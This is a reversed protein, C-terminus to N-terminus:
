LERSNCQEGTAADYRGSQHALLDGPLRHALHPGHRAHVLALGLHRAVGVGEDREGTLMM